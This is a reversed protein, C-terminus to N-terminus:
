AVRWELLGAERWAVDQSLFMADPPGIQGSRYQVTQPEIELRLASTTVPEFQVANFRDKAVGYATRAAVPKWTEGDKYLIRWAAPM